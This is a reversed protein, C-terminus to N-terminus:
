QETYTVQIVNDDHRFKKRYQSPSMGAVQKFFKSLTQTDGFNCVEAIEKISKDSNLLYEIVKNKRENLIFEKLGVGCYKKFNHRFHDYSYGNRQAIDKVSLAMHSYMRIYACTEQIIKPLDDKAKIGGAENRALLILFEEILDNIMYRYHLPQNRNETEIRTCLRLLKGKKDSSICTQLGVPYDKEIHFVFFLVETETRHYESHLVGQPIYCVSGAEYPYEKGGITSIGEGCIYYVVETADHKHEKEVTNEGHVYRWIFQLSINAM